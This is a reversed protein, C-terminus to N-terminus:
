FHEELRKEDYAKLIKRIKKYFFLYFTKYDCIM